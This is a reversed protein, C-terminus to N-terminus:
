DREIHATRQFVFFLVFLEYSWRGRPKVLFMYNDYISTPAAYGNRNLEDLNSANWESGLYVHPFIQTAADMQGLVTLMEQDIFPKYEGLDVDLTEELRGRIFKSTVDDLDVSMMIEKLASRIVRETEERESPRFISVVSTRVYKYIIM